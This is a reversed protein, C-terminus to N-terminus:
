RADREILVASIDDARHGGSFESVSWCLSELLIQGHLCANTHLVASLGDEGLLAGSASTAETIGDSAIFLRDGPNLTLEVENYEPDDLVGVPLGGQGVPMVSGDARQLMPHPHGAQVLRVRGTAPTLDAYAMTFYSDTRIESVMLKNLKEAVRVPEPLTEQGPDLLDAGTMYASLRAALLASTVGHGVVDITYAAVRGDPSARMGVLDGGIHGAPRMLLSLDFDGIRAQRERVMGQQIKRAERLDNEMAQQTQRLDGLATELQRNAALLQEQMRLIREGANMRALLEEIAVPKCLFDDAGASLGAAADTPTNRATLLLFYGYRGTRLARFARCFDLGSMMPLEWGSLVFDPPVEKCIKLAEQPDAALMVEFGARTLHLFLLGRQTRSGDVVLVRRAPAEAAAPPLTWLDPALRNPESM